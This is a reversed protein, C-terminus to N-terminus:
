PGIIVLEAEHPAHWVLLKTEGPVLELLQDDGVLSLSSKDSSFIVVSDARTTVVQGAPLPQTNIIPIGAVIPAPSDLGARWPITWWLALAAVMLTLLARGCNRMRRKRRVRRLTEGLLEERFQAADSFMVSLLEKDKM